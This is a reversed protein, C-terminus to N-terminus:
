ENRGTAADRLRDTATIAPGATKLLGPSAPTKPHPRTPANQKGEALQRGLSDAQEATLVSRLSPWVVTEEFAIHARGAKTFEALLAEFETDEPTLKDLRDLM